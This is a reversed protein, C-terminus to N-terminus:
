NAITSHQREDHLQLRRPQLRTRALSSVGGTSSSKLITALPRLRRRMRTGLIELQRPVGSNMHRLLLVQSVSTTPPSKATSTAQRAYQPVGRVDRCRYPSGVAQSWNPDRVEVSCFSTHSSPPKQTAAAFVVGPLGQHVMPRRSAAPVTDESARGGAFESMPLSDSLWRCGLLMSGSM